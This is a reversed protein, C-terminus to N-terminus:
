LNFSTADRCDLIKLYVSIPHQPMHNFPSPSQAMLKRPYKEICPITPNHQLPLSTPVSGPFRRYKYLTLRLSYYKYDLRHLSLSSVCWNKSYLPSVLVDFWQFVLGWRKRVRCSDALLVEYMSTRFEPLSISQGRFCNKKRHHFGAWHRLELLLLTIQDPLPQRNHRSPSSTHPQQVRIQLRGRKRPVAPDSRKRV